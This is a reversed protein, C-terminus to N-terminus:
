VCVNSLSNLKMVTDKFLTLVMKAIQMFKVGCAACIYLISFLPPFLSLSFFLFLPSVSLFFFHGSVDKWIQMNRTRKAVCIVRITQRSDVFSQEGDDSSVFRRCLYLEPTVCAAVLVESHRM